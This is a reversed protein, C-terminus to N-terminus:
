FIPAAKLFGSWLSYHLSNSEKTKFKTFLKFCFLRWNFM